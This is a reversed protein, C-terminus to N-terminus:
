VEEVVISSKILSNDSAREDQRDLVKFKTNPPYLVEAEQAFSSLHAVSKGSSGTVTLQLPAPFAAATSTSWFGQCQFTQGVVYVAEWGDWAREGRSSTIKGISDLKGLAIKTIENLVELVQPRKECPKGTIPDNDLLPLEKGPEKRKNMEARNMNTYDETTYTYLAVVEAESLKTIDAGVSAAQASAASHRSDFKGQEMGSNLLETTGVNPDDRLRQALTKPTADTPPSPPTGTDPTTPPPTPTTLDTPPAVVEPAPPQAVVPDSVPAPGGVDIKSSPQAEPTPPQAVGAAGAHEPGGLVIGRSEEAIPPQAPPAEGAPKPAGLVIGRPPTAAAGPGASLKAAEAAAAVIRAAEVACHELEQAHGRLLAADDTSSLKLFLKQLAQLNGDLKQQSPPNAIREVAGQAAAIATRAEGQRDLYSQQDALFGDVKKRADGVVKQGAAKVRELADTKIKNDGKHMAAQRAQELEDAVHTLEESHLGVKTLRAIEAALESQVDRVKQNRLELLADTVILGGSLVKVFHDLSVTGSM